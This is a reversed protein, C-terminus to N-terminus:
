VWRYGQGWITILHVPQSPDDELKVRMRRINVDVIKGEVNKDNDWVQEILESRSVIRDPNHFLYDIIKYEVETLVIKMGNKYLARQTRNLTFEGFSEEDPLGGTGANKAMNVRRYLADVRAVLESPSFPKTVYDDAGYLFSALKDSEQSKATLMIIGTFENIRRVFACVEDGPIEPMMIDLICIDIDKGDREFIDAAQKGDEAEVVEYGNIKLNLAVLERISAEDEAVLVKKM